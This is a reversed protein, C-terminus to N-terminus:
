LMRTHPPLRPATAIDTIVLDGDKVDCSIVQMVLGDPVGTATQM